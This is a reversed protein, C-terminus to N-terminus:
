QSGIAYTQISISICSSKRQIVLRGEGSCTKDSKTRKLLIYVSEPEQRHFQIKSILNDAHVTQFTWIYYSKQWHNEDLSRTGGFLNIISKSQRSYSPSLWNWFVQLQKIHLLLFPL